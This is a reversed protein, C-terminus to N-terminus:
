ENEGAKLFSFFATKCEPCLDWSEEGGINSHRLVFFSGMKHLDQTTYGCRDCMLTPKDIRSM